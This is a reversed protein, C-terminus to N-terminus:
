LRWIFKMWELHCNKSTLAFLNDFQKRVKQVEPSLWWDEITDWKRNVAEVADQVTEYFIGVAKLQKFMFDAEETFSYEPFGFYMMVPTNSAMAEYFATGYHDIVILHAKLMEKRLDKELFKMNPFLDKIYDRDNFYLTEQTMWPRYFFGQLIRKDLKRIFEEKSQLYDISFALDGAQIGDLTQRQNTGVLILMNTLFKHKDRIRALVPSPVSVFRCNRKKPMCKGWNIFYDGYYEYSDATLGRSSTCYNSGHQVFILKEGAVVSCAHLFAKEDDQAGTSDFRIKEQKFREKKFITRVQSMLAEESYLQPFTYSIMQNLIDLFDKSFLEASNQEKGNEATSKEEKKRDKLFSKINLVMSFFFSRWGGVGYIHNFSKFGYSLKSFFVDSFFFLFRYPKKWNEKERLFEKIKNTSYEQKTGGNFLEVRGKTRKIIINKLQLHELIISSFWEQFDMNTLLNLLFDQKDRFKRPLNKDFTHVLIKKTCLRPLSKKLYMYRGFTFVVISFYYYKLLFVYFRYPYYVKYTKELSKKYDKLLIDALLNCKDYVDDRESLNKFLHPFQFQHLSLPFKKLFTNDFVSYPFLIDDQGFVFNNDIKGLYLRSTRM